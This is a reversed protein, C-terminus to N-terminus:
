NDLQMKEYETFTINKFISYSSEVLIIEEDKKLKDKISKLKIAVYNFVQNKYHNIIYDNAVEKDWFHLYRDIKGDAGLIFIRKYGNHIAINIALLLTNNMYGVKGKERNLTEGETIWKGGHQTITEVVNSDIWEAKDKKYEDWVIWKDYKIVYFASQNCVYIDTIIKNFDFGKLSEGTCVITLTKKM